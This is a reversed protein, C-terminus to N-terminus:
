EFEAVACIGYKKHKNEKIGIESYSSNLCTRRHGLSSIDIDILWEIAIEKGTTMGYACNEAYNCRKGNKRNHGVYGSEGSEKAFSKASVYMTQNFTLAPVAKMSSLCERLSKKYSSTDPISTYTDIEYKLFLKPYLRALNIYKITEKELTTLQTINKGTNAKELQEKTWTQAALINTLIVFLSLKFYKKM